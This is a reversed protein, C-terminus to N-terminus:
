LFISSIPTRQSSIFVASGFLKVRDDLLSRVQCIWKIEAWSVIQLYITHIFAIEIVKSTKEDNLELALKQM